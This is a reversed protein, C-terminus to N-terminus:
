ARAPGPRLADVCSDLSKLRPKQGNLGPEWECNRLSLFLAKNGTAEEIAEGFEAMAARWGHSASSDNFWAWYNDPALLCLVLPSPKGERGSRQRIEVLIDSLNSQIAAAYTLAQLIGKLPTDTTGSRLVKLEVIYLSGSGGIGFLDIKGVGADAHRAKLPVQYDLLTLPEGGPLRLPQQRSGHANFLALALHEEGRNTSDGTSPCGSHGEVFYKKSVGARSPAAQREASFAARIRGVDLGRAIRVFRAIDNVEARACLDIMPHAVQGASVAIPPGGPFSRAERPFLFNWLQTAAPIARAYRGDPKTEVWHRLQERVEIRAAEDGRFAACIKAEIKEIGARNAVSLFARVRRGLYAEVANPTEHM